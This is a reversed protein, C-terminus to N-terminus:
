EMAMLRTPKYIITDHFYDFYKSARHRCVINVILERRATVIRCWHARNSFPVLLCTFFQCACLLTYTSTIYKVNDDGPLQDGDVIQKRRRIMM